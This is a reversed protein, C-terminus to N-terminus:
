YKEKREGFIGISKRRRSYERDEEQTTKLNGYDFQKGRINRNRNRIDHMRRMHGYGCHTCGVSVATAIAHHTRGSVSFIFLRYSLLNYLLTQARSM